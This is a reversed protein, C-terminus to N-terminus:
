GKTNDEKDGKDKGDWVEKIEKKMVIIACGLFNTLGKKIWRQLFDGGEILYLLESNPGAL